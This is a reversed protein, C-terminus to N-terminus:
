AAGISLRHQGNNSWIAAVTLLKTLWLSSIFLVLSHYSCSTVNTSLFTSIKVALCCSQTYLHTCMPFCLCPEPAYTLFSDQFLFTFQFSLSSSLLFYLISLSVPSCIHVHSTFFFHQIGCFDLLKVETQPATTALSPCSSFFRYSSIKCIKAPPPPFALISLLFFICGM